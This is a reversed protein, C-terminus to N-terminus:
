CTLKSQYIQIDHWGAIIGAELFETSLKKECLFINKKDM